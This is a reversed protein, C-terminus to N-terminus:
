RHTDPFEVPNVFRAIVDASAPPNELLFLHGGPLMHRRASPLRAALIRANLPPVVRDDDGALVLTPTRVHHLWPLSTWGAAASLQGVYGCLSPPRAHRSAVHRALMRDDGAAGPGYLLPAVLRFFRPSYYRLPTVLAAMALPHGPISGLGCTTGALILRRVRHPNRLALEQAVGGGFSAGLVDVQPLALADLLHAAERALGPMRRPLLRPPSEGTGPADYTITQVGQDVLARELPDWMELNGGLGMILLLSRGRGRVSVRVVNGDVRLFTRLPADAITM